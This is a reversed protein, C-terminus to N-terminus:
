IIPVYSNSYISYVYISYQICPYTYIYIYTIYIYTCKNMKSVQKQKFKGGCAVGADQSHTCLSNVSTSYSCDKLSSESGTCLVNDMLINGTGNGYYASAYAAKFPGCGLERCLVIGDLPDWSYHCITGWDGTYRVQVTGHCFNQGHVLKVESLLFIRIFECQMKRATKVYDDYTATQQECKGRCVVGADNNHSSKKEYDSICTKLSIETGTCATDFLWTTGSGKGFASEGNVSLASGCDMQRCIVDGGLLNWGNASVTGWGFHEYLVEVRGSCTNLGDALM